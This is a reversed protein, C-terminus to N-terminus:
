AVSPLDTEDENSQPKYLLRRMAKLIDKYSKTDAMERARRYIEFAAKEQEETAYGEYQYVPVVICTCKPHWRNMLELMAQADGRDWLEAAQVDDLNLGATRASKYAPGRSIMMTCFACTPPQPDYRAWGLAEEDAEVGRLLTRRAGDEVVKMLRGTMESVAAEPTAGPRQLDDFVPRIAEEFWDVPYYDDKYFDVRDSGPLERERNADFFERALTTAQDRTQKVIPYVGNVFRMWRAFTMRPVLFGTMVWLLGAILQRILQDKAAAYEELDM